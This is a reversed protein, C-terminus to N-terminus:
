QWTYVGAYTKTNGIVDGKTINSLATPRHITNTAADFCTSQTTSNSCLPWLQRMEMDCYLDEVYSVFDPSVAGKSKCLTEASHWPFHSRILTGNIYAFDERIQTRTKRRELEYTRRTLAQRIAPKILEPNLDVGQGIVKAPDKDTGDPNYQLPPQFYLTWDDKHLEHYFKLRAPANCLLDTNNNYQQAVSSLGYFDTMHLGLGQSRLGNSYDGDIWICNSQQGDSGTRSVSPSWDSDQCKSGLDGLWVIPDSGDPWAVSIASICIADIGGASIAMYSAQTGKMGKNPLVKITTSGGSAVKAGGKASGILDGAETWLQINPTNGGMLDDKGHIGMTGLQIKVLTADSDHNPILDKITPYAFLGTAALGLAAIINAMGELSVLHLNPHDQPLQALLIFWLSTRQSSHFIFGFHVLSEQLNFKVARWISYRKGM